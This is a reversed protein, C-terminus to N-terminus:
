SMSSSYTSATAKLLVSHLSISALALAVFCSVNMPEGSEVGIGSQLAHHIMKQQKEYRSKMDRSQEYAQIGVSLGNNECKSSFTIHFNISIGFSRTRERKCVWRLAVCFCSRVFVSMESGGGCRERRLRQTLEFICYCFTKVFSLLIINFAHIKCKVVFHIALIAPIVKPKFNFVILSM